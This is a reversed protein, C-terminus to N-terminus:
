SLSCWKRTYLFKTNHLSAKTTFIFFRLDNGGGLADSYCMIRYCYKYYQYCSIAAAVVM